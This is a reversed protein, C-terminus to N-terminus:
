ELYLRRLQAVEKSDVGIVEDLYRDVSGWRADIADLTEALLSRGSSNYLPGPKQVASKVLLAAAPNDPYKEIDIPASEYQPRRNLTSLDYDELITRRPVGLASLVLATAIGTRDQGATCNYAIAGKHSKLEDFVSRFQPAMSTLLHYYMDTASPKPVDEPLLSQFPYDIAVYRIGKEMMRTPALQREETSRLDIMTRVNLTHLLTDVDSDSLLPTAASRYILGWRVHKGDAALYGGLDRFNSGHELPLVREAVRVWTGDRTDHLLFYWRRNEPANVLYRGDRNATEVKAASQMDADAKSSVYIDVQNPSSWALVVQSEDIRQVTPDIIAAFTTSFALLSLLVWVLPRFLPRLCRAKAQVLKM